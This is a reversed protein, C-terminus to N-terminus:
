SGEGFRIDFMGVSLVAADDRDISKPEEIETWVLLNGGEESDFIAEAVLRGRLNEAALLRSAETDKFWPILYNHAM